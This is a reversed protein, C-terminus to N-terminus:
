RNLSTEADPYYMGIYADRQLQLWDTTLQQSKKNVDSFAVQSKRRM